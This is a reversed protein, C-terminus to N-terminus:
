QSSMLASYAPQQRLRACIWYPTAAAATPWSRWRTSDPFFRVCYKWDRARLTPKSTSLGTVNGGPRSLSAVLGTGVPDGAAAFVVPIVSTGQKAAVASPTGYTVVVDVKRRVFEATIEAFRPERGDAWLYEIVVTRGDIWDLERLRQVFAAAWQSGAASTGSGQFGITPLRQQAHAGLPWAAVAGGLLTIFERRRTHRSLLM